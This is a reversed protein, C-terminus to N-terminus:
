RSKEDWADLYQASIASFQTHFAAIRKLKQTLFRTFEDVAFLKKSENARRLALAWEFVRTLTTSDTIVIPYFIYNHLQIDKSAPSFGLAQFIRMQAKFAMHIQEAVRATSIQRDHRRYNGLVADVNAFRAEPFATAIRTWLEYDLACTMKEAYRIGHKRFLDGNFTAFPHPIPSFFLLSARIVDSDVPLLFEGDANGFARYHSGCVWVDGHERMLSIQRELRDPLSIDDADMHALYLGAARDLLRNLSKPIGLNTENRLAIIRPDRVGMIVDYTSDTSGDDLVLLEFDEETQALMSRLAEEIYDEVNCGAM